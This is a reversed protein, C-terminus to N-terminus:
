NIGTGDNLQFDLFTIQQVRHRSLIFNTNTNTATQTFSKSVRSVRYVTEGAFSHVVMQFLVMLACAFRTVTHTATQIPIIQANNIIEVIFMPVRMAFEALHHWQFAFCLTQSPRSMKLKYVCNFSLLPVSFSDADEIQLDVTGSHKAYNM